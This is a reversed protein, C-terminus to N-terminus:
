AARKAQQTRVRAWRARAAAAIRKRGEASIRPSRSKSPKASSQSSKNRVKAWRQRQAQAIRRRAAATLTRKPRTGNVTAGASRGNLSEIVSIAKELKEVATQAQKHETRLQQLVNDFTTM